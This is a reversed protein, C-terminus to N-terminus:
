RARALRPTATAQRARWPRVSSTRWEKTLEAREAAARAAERGRGLRRLVAGLQGLAESRTRNDQEGLEDLAQELYGVAASDAREQCALRAADLLLCAARQSAGSRSL